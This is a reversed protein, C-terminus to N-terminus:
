SIKASEVQCDIIYSNQLRSQLIKSPCMYGIWSDADHKARLRALINCTIGDEFIIVMEKCCFVLSIQRCFFLKARLYFALLLQEIQLMAALLVPLM